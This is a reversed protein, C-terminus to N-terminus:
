QQAGQARRKRHRPFYVRKSLKGVVYSRDPDVILRGEISTRGLLMRFMMTDRSTLTIEMPWELEGVRVSAEIVYRLERHGGSDAVWRCDIAEAVCTVAIDTRRQLPHIGFRVLKRGDQEFPTVYFAHLASTRAGTDVKAKIAPLGLAPIAVWERWGIILKDNIAEGGPSRQNAGISALSPRDPLRRRKTAATSCGGRKVRGPIPLRIGLSTSSRPPIAM